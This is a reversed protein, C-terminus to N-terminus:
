EIISRYIVENSLRSGDPLVVRLISGDFVPAIESWRELIRGFQMDFNSVTVTGRKQFLHRAALRDADFWCMQFGDSKMRSVVSLCSTPFGWDLVVPSGLRAIADLFGVRDSDSHYAEWSKRLQHRDLGEHEMDVHLFQHERELWRGFTSKGSGPIGSILVAKKM